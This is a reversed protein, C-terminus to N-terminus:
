QLVECTAGLEERQDFKEEIVSEVSQDSVERPFISTFRLLRLNTYRM